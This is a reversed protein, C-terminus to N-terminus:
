TLWRRAPFPLARLPTATTAWPASGHWSPLFTGPRVGGTPRHPSHVLIAHASRGPRDGTIRADRDTDTAVM